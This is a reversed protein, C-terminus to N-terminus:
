KASEDFFNNLDFRKVARTLAEGDGSFEFKKTIGDRKSQYMVSLHVRPKDSPLKGKHKDYLYSAVMNLFVQMSVDGALYILPLWVDAGNLAIRPTSTPLSIPLEPQAHKLWKAFDGGDARLGPAGTGYAEPVLRVGHSFASLYDQFDSDDEITHITLETDSQAHTM